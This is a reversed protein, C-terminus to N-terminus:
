RRWKPNMSPLRHHGISASLEYPSTSRPSQTCATTIIYDVTAVKRDTTTQGSTEEFENPFPSFPNGKDAGAIIM